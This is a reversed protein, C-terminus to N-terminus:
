SDECLHLAGHSSTCFVDVTVRALRSKSNNDKSCQVNDNGGHVQTREILQVGNSINEHFRVCHLASHSSTCFALIM